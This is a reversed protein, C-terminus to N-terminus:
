DYLKARVYEFRFGGNAAAGWRPLNADGMDAVPGYYNENIAGDYFNGWGRMTGNKALRFWCLLREDKDFVFLSAGEDRLEVRLESPATALRHYIFYPEQRLGYLEAALETAPMETRVGNRESWGGDPAV